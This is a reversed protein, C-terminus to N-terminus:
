RLHSCVPMHQRNDYLAVSLFVTGPHVQALWKFIISGPISEARAASRLRAMVRQCALCVSRSRM